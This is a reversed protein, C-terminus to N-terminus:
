RNAGVPTPKELADQDFFAEHKIKSLKPMKNRNKRKVRSLGAAVISTGTLVGAIFAGGKNVDRKFDSVVVEEARDLGKQYSKEADIVDQAKNIILIRDDEQMHEIVDEFRGEEMIEGIDKSYDKKTKKAADLQDVTPHDHSKAYAAGARDIARGDSLTNPVTGAGLGIGAMFMLGAVRSSTNRERSM